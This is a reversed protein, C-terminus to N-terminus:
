TGHYAWQGFKDAECAYNNFVDECVTMDHIIQNTSKEFEAHDKIESGNRDHIIIEQCKVKM